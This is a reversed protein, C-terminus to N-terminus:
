VGMSKVAGASITNRTCPGMQARNGIRYPVIQDPSLQIGMPVGMGQTGHLATDVAAGLSPSRHKENVMAATAGKTCVERRQFAACTGSPSFDYNLVGRPIQAM